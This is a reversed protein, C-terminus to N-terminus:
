HDKKGGKTNDGNGCVVVVASDGRLPRVNLAGLEKGTGSSNTPGPGAANSSLSPNAIIPATVVPLPTDPIGLIEEIGEEVAEGVDNIIQGVDVLVDVVDEVPDVVVFPIATIAELPTEPILLISM